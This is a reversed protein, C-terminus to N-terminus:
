FSSIKQKFDGKSLIKLNPDIKEQYTRLVAAIKEYEDGLNLSGFVNKRTDDDPVPSMHGVQIFNGQTSAIVKEDFESMANIQVTQDISYCLSACLLMKKVDANLERPVVPPFVQIKMCDPLRGSLMPGGSFEKPGVVAVMRVAIQPFAAMVRPYTIQSAPLGRGGGMQIQYKTNLDTLQKKGEESMKTLNHSNVSGKIMGIAVMSCVDDKFQTDSVNQQSKVKALSEIIKIPNFGQYQFQDFTEAKLAEIDHRNILDLIRSIEPSSAM